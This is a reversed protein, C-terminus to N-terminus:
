SLNAAVCAWGSLRKCCFNRFSSKFLCVFLVCVSKKLLFIVVLFSSLLFVYFLCLSSMWYLYTTPKNTQKNKFTKLYKWWGKRSIPTKLQLLLFKPLLSCQLLFIMKRITAPVRHAVSWSSDWGSSISNGYDIVFYGVAREISIQSSYYCLLASHWPMNKTKSLSHISWRKLKFGYTVWALLYWFCTKKQLFFVIFRNIM